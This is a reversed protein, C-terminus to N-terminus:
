EAALRVPEAQNREAQRMAAAQTLQKRVKALKALGVREFPVGMARLASRNERICILGEAALRKWHAAAGQAALLEFGGRMGGHVRPRNASIILSPRTTVSATM